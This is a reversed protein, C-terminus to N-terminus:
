FGYSGLTRNGIRIRPLDYRKKNCLTSGPKTTLAFDYGSSKLYEETQLNDSGYPYAFIMPKNLGRESLQGQATDIEKKTDNQNTLVSKHSWTHNAFFINNKSMEDIQGWNLYDPNGVLGTPVFVTAKFGLDRLIPYADTYFDQYADDFTLYISKSNPSSSATLFSTLENPSVTSYGKNKLEQMQEKFNETFVTLGTQKKSKAMDETQVHHYMLIPLRVCPGYLKNMEQFTLPRPTATATPTPTTTPMATQVPAPSSLPILQGFRSFNHNTEVRNFISTLFYFVTALLEKM